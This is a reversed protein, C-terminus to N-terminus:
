CAPAKFIIAISVASPGNKFTPYSQPPQSKFSHVNLSQVNEDLKDKLTSQRCDIMPTRPEGFLPRQAGELQLQLYQRLLRAM